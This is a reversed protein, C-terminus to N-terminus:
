CENQDQPRDATTCPFWERLTECFDTFSADTCRLVSVNDALRKYLSSSRPRRAERLAAEFAEKPREPKVADPRMWGKDEM